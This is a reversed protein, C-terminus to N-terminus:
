SETKSNKFFKINLLKLNLEDQAQLETTAIYKRGSRSHWQEVSLDPIPM